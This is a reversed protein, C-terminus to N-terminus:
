GKVCCILFYCTIIDGDRGSMTLLTSLVCIFIVPKLCLAKEDIKNGILTFFMCCIYIECLFEGVYSFMM